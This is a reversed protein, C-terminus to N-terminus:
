GQKVIKSLITFVQEETENLYRLIEPDINRSIYLYTDVLSNLKIMVTKNDLNDTIFVAKGDLAEDFNEESPIIFEDSLDRVDKLINGLSDILYIDDVRRLIKESKM